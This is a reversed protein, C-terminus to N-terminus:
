NVLLNYQITATYTGAPLSNPVVVTLNICHTQAQKLAGTWV